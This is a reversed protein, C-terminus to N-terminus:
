EEEGRNGGQIIPSLINFPLLLTNRMLNLMGEGVAEPHLVTIEPERIDGRVGVPITIIATDPGGLARGIFPIRGIIADLTKFTAIMVTMNAQKTGLDLQGRVFLNLGEGKVIERELYLINDEIRGEFELSQYAFGREDLGTVGGTFFDTLNILSFIRSLLKMRLIRGGGPSNVSIRGEHWFTSDGRLRADVRCDGVIVDQGIGLCTLIDEFRSREPCITRIRLDGVGLAPDSYWTGTTELCCLIGQSIEASLGGGPHLALRAQFPTWTFYPQDAPVEDPLLERTPGADFRALDVTISGSVPWSTSAKTAGEERGSQPGSFLTQPLRNQWGLLTSRRLFPSDLDLDLILGGAPNSRILGALSLQERPSLSLELRELYIDSKPQPGAQERGELALAIIELASGGEVPDSSEEPAAPHWRIGAAEIEGKFLPARAGAPLLFQGQGRLLGRSFPLQSFFRALSDPALEGQFRFQLAPPLEEQAPTPGLELRLEAQHLGDELSAELTLQDGKGHPLRSTFRLTAPAEERGGRLVGALESLRTERSPLERTLRLTLPDLVLPVSPLLYPPLWEREQLWGRGEGSMLGKLQLEGRWEQLLRHHLYGDLVIRDGRLMGTLEQFRVGASSFLLTGHGENIIRTALLPSDWALGRPALALEYEWGEPQWLKGAARSQRLEVQGDIESLVGALAKQLQPYDLLHHFLPGAALEGSLERVIFPVAEEVGVQGAAQDIRHPGIRGRVGSWHVEERSIQAQASEVELPWPLREYETRGALTAIKVQVNLEDLTEGITLRGTAVGQPHHFRRVEEQFTPHQVLGPLVDRLDALTAELALDLKFQRLEKFLGVSLSCDYGRSEGLTARAQRLELIGNEILLSGSADFLHLDVEPVMIEATAVEVAVTMTRFDALDREPGAFYFAASSAQGDRVIDYFERAAQFRGLMAMVAARIEGADLDHGQIDIEWYPSSPPTDSATLRRSVMGKLHMGPEKVEFDHILLQWDDQKRTLELHALGCDLRVKGEEPSLLFCPFQGHLSATFEELGLGDVELTLNALTELTNIQSHALSPVAEHLRLGKGEVTLHHAGGPQYWGRLALSAGFSPRSALELSIQTPSFLLRGSIGEIQFPAITAGALEGPATITIQGRRVQLEGATPLKLAPAPPPEANQPSSELAAPDIFLQPSDLVIRGLELRLRVLSRWRPYLHAEELLLRAQPHALKIGEVRLHPLPHWVLKLDALDIDSTLREALQRAFHERVPESDLLLTVTLGLTAASLLLGLLILRIKFLM